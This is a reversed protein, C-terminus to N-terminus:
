VPWAWTPSSSSERAGRGIRRGSFLTVWKTSPTIVATLQRHLKAEEDHLAEVINM